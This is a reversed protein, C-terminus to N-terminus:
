GHRRRVHNTTLDNGNDITTARKDRGGGCLGSLAPVRSPLRVQLFGQLWTLVDKPSSIADPSPLVSAAITSHVQYLIHADRQLYLVALLLGSFCIFGILKSYNHWREDQAQYRKHLERVVELAREAKDQADRNTIDQPEPQM